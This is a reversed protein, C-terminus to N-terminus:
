GRRTLLVAQFMQGPVFVPPWPAFIAIEAMLPPHDVVLQQRIQPNPNEEFNPKIYLTGISTIANLPKTRNHM